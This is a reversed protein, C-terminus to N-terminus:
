EGIGHQLEHTLLQAATSYLGSVFDVPRGTPEREPSSIEMFRLKDVTESRLRRRWQHRALMRIGALNAAISAVAESAAALAAIALSMVTGVTGTGVM